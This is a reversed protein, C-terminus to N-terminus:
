GDRGVDSQQLGNGCQGSLDPKRGPLVRGGRLGAWRRAQGPRSDLWWHRVGAPAREQDKALLRDAERARIKSGLRKAVVGEMRQQRSADLMAPGSGIVCPPTQCHDAELKLSELQERRIEHPEQVLSRDGLYLVDFIMYAVGVDRRAPVRHDGKLGMRQKLAEFRPRGEDDFGVIEGDLIANRGDLASALGGLEPYRSTAEIQNRPMLRLKGNQIFALGRIGDWKMEYVWRDDDKPLSPSLKALM